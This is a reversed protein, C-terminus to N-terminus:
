RGRQQLQHGARRKRQGGKGGERAVALAGRFRALAAPLLEGSTKSDRPRLVGGAWAGARERALTKVGEQGRRSGRTLVSIGTGRKKASNRGRSWCAPLSPYAHASAASNAAKPLTTQNNCLPRRLFFDMGGQYCAGPALPLGVRLVSIAAPWALRCARHPPLPCPSSLATLLVCLLVCLRSITHSCRECLCPSGPRQCRIQGPAMDLEANALGLKRTSTGAGRRIPLAMGHAKQLEKVDVWVLAGVWASAALSRRQGSVHVRVRRYTPPGAVGWRRRGM